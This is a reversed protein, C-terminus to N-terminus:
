AAPRLRPGCARHGDARVEAVDRRDVLEDGVADGAQALEVDEDVVGAHFLVGREPVDGLLVVIEDEVGVELAREEGRLSEDLMELRRLAGPLIM